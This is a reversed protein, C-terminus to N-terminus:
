FRRVVLRVRGRIIELLSRDSLSVCQWGHPDEGTNRGLLYLSRAARRVRRVVSEGGLDAAYYSEEDPDQRQAESRDLLAVSDDGALDAMRPDPALRAAVPSEIGDLDAALFPYGEATSGAPFPHGPGISGDLFPVTRCPQMERGIKGWNESEEGEALLDLLDIRLCRVILDASEASLVRAGKLVNHIHPQSIGSLRALNRETVEGNRVRAKIHAILRLQLTRFDV